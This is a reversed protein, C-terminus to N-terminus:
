RALYALIIMAFCTSKQYWRVVSIMFIVIVFSKSFLVVFPL